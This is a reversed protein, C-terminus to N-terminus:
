VGQSCVVASSCSCGWKASKNHYINIPKINQAHVACFLASRRGQVALPLPPPAAAVAAPAAAAAITSLRLASSCPCSSGSSLFARDSAGLAAFGASLRSASAFALASSSFCFASLSFSFFSGCARRQLSNEYRWRENMSGDICLFACCGHRCARRATGGRKWAAPPHLSRGPQLQQRRAQHQQWVLPLRQDAPAQLDVGPRWGQAQQQLAHPWPPPAPPLTRAAVRLVHARMVPHLEFGTCATNSAVFAHAGRKGCICVFMHIYVCSLAGM